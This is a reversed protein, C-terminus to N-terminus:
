SENRRIEDVLDAIFIGLLFGIGLLIFTMM